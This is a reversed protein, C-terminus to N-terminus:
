RAIRALLVTEDGRAIRLDTVGESEKKYFDLKEGEYCPARFILDISRAQMAELEKASFAGFLARPYAANNMHGGLDIDTSRVTYSAFPETGDFRAPIRVFPESVSSGSVYDLDAPFLDATPAIANAETNMVAWETRGAILLKDGRRIEYSRNCRVAGPKEPWTILRVAESVAPREHFIIKTRVTVWFRNKAKMAALGIGLHEAHETALDMLVAFAGAYGLRGSYDCASPPILINQEFIPQM